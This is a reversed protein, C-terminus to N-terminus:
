WTYSAVEDISTTAHSQTYVNGFRDTAKIEIYSNQSNPVLRYLHDPRRYWETTGTSTTPETKGLSLSLKYACKEYDEFREMDGTKVGDEYLEVKWDDDTNWVNAIVYDSNDNFSYLPYMRIQFDSDFKTPKYYWNAITNSEVEFVGYGNPTGDSNIASQWWGGCAAGHIHEYIGNSKLEVNQNYHTHGSMIHVENYPEIAAYLEQYRTISSQNRIPIHVCVIVLKDKSVYQLDSKLWTIQEATFGGTYNKSGTYLVDDMAIIHADGRNFSYNTPGFVDEYNKIADKDNTTESYHDHNGIVHFFKMNTTVFVNKMPLLMDPTDFCIDGLTIGYCNEHNSKERKIDPITEKECRTFNAATKVQPDAVCFLTFNTEAGGAMKTLSFDKRYIDYHTYIEEFFSPCNNKIKVECDNPLSCMVFRANTDRKLQYIGNIDTITSTYGDSVM